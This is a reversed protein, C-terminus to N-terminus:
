TFSDTSDELTTKSKSFFMFSLFPHLSLVPLTVSSGQYVNIKHFPTRFSIGRHDSSTTHKLFVYVGCRTAAYTLGDRRIHTGVGEWTEGEVENDSARVFREYELSVEVWSIYIKPVSLVSFSTNYLYM